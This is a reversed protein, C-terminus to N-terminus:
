FSAHQAAVARAFGRPTVSRLNWRDGGSIQLTRSVPEGLDLRRSQPMSFGGGTWLSTRKTYNDDSCYATYDCPDFYHDPERWLSAITSIPNEILYPCGLMEGITVCQHVTELAKALYGADRQAKSEFHAAGSVALDTCPPFAAMFITSTHQAQMRLIDWADRSDIKAGITMLMNTRMRIGKPHQPDILIATYGMDLWPQAMNGTLECLGVYVNRHESKMTTM